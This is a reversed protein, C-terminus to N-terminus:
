KRRRLKWKGEKKGWLIGGEERFVKKGKWGFHVDIGM